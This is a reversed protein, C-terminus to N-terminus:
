VPKSKGLFKLCLCYSSNKFYAIYILLSYPSPNELFNSASVIAPIKLHKEALYIVHNYNERKDSTFEPDRILGPHIINIFKCLGELPFETISKLNIQYDKLWALFFKEPRLTQGNTCLAIHYKLIIAWILDLIPSARKEYIDEPRIGFLKVNEKELFNFCVVLNNIQQIKIYARKNIPPLKKKSVVQLLEWLFIGDSLSGTTLSSPEILLELLSLHTNCWNTYVKEEHSRRPEPLSAPESCHFPHGRTYM